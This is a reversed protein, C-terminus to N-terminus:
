SRQVTPATGIVERVKRALSEPTFPKELFAMKSELVGHRVISDDTYGSMYLVKLEPRGQALRKALETGSMHPMVVDTLLLDIPGSFRECLLLAEAANQATVVRYGHRKLITHAIARVQDQDEVLLITETGRHTAPALTPRAADVEADVRPFFVKFTTGLGPESYVWVTGGSQQAIGFVTSLGLGTGKGADKTTFFPEFIRAQTASDMGIGTDSVALMVHPGPAAGLHERAYEGDLDVNATEITLRGGTPMADRANVVLNMIVQEVSSPDALVRGLGTAPVSVLDVDEGVIRKVMKSVGSLVENLDIVKRAIVQQRSFLLLQRTLDAARQAAKRIEEVDGSTPDNPKMDEMIMESYSLIVSLLNNFDHAIGGALRGVAEMKQAQRLQDETSRLAQEAKRQATLDRATKSVGVVKGSADLIPALSISVVIESGDKQQRVTEYHDVREGATVREILSREEDLRARPIVVVISQGLVEEAPHGFLREAARNWSTITGDLRKSVIADNSSAVIAALLARMDEAEHRASIDNMVAIRARRSGFMLERSTYEVFFTSGDNRRHVATGRYEGDGHAVLRVKVNNNDGDARLDSLKMRRLEAYTYGYLRLAADNGALLALTEVDFVVLPVPSAEFLIRHATESEELAESASSAASHAAHEALHSRANGIALAAHDAINRVLHLDDETYPNDSGSRLLAAVGVVRGRCLMPVIIVSGISLRELIERYQSSTSAAWQMATISPIFVPQGSAAVRGMAGDGVRQHHATLLQHAWTVIAADRHHVAGAELMTGDESVARIACLDGIIESLRRAIVALLRDYDGTAESFEQSADALLRLRAAMRGLEALEREAM